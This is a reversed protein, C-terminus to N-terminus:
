DGNTIGANEDMFQNEPFDGDSRREPKTGESEMPPNMQEKRWRAYQEDTLIKRIKKETKKRQKEEKKRQKEMEKVVDSSAPFDHPSRQGFGKPPRNGNGGPGMGHGGSPPNGGFGPRGGPGGGHRENMRPGGPMNKEAQQRAEKLHLAYLKDYQKETLGLLSKMRNTIRRAQKEPSVPMPKYHEESQTEQRNGAETEQAIAVTSCGLLLMCASMFINGINM